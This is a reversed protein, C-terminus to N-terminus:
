MFFETNRSFVYRTVLLLVNVKRNNVITRIDENSMAIGEDAISLSWRSVRFSIIFLTESAPPQAGDIQAGMGPTSIGAPIVGSVCAGAGSALTPSLPTGLGAAALLGNTFM